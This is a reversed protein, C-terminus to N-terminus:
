ATVALAPVVSLPYLLSALAVTGVAGPAGTSPNGVSLLNFFSGPLVTTALESVARTRHFYILLFRM